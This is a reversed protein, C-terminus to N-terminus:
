TIAAVGGPPHRTEVVELVHVLAGADHALGHLLRVLRLEEVGLLHVELHGLEVLALLQGGTRKVRRRQRQWLM